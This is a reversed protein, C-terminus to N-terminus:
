NTSQDIRPWKIARRFLELRWGVILGVALALSLTSFDSIKMENTNTLVGSFILAAFRIFFFLTTFIIMLTSPGVLVTGKDPLVTINSYRGKCWGLGAGILGAGGAILLITPHDNLRPMMYIGVCVIMVPGLLLRNIAIERAQMQRFLALALFALPVAIILPSVSERPM